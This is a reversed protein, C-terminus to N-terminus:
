KAMGKEVTDRDNFLRAFAGANTPGFADLDINRGTAEDQLSVTGDTWRTLTFPPQQGIDDRKRERAMGRMTARVFGGVGPEVTYLQAGNAADRVVVAGDDRDEFRLQLVEYAKVVPMHVAGVNEVHGFLTLSFAFAVLAGAGILVGRPIHGGQGANQRQVIDSM